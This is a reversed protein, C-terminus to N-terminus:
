ETESRVFVERLQSLGRHLLGAVAPTTKGLHEAVDKLPWGQMYRLEVVERQADPLRMLAAALRLLLENREAQEPPSARGDALWAELRASSAELSRELSQERNVDRKQRDFDRAANALNRALIQRLWAAVQAGSEGTFGARDRHAELLTQQVLDSPDLKSRLRPSLQSRALLLLYDRYRDLDPPENV